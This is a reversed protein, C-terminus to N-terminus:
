GIQDDPQGVHARFYAIFVFFENKLVFCFDAEDGHFDTWFYFSHFAITIIIRTELGFCCRRLSICFSLIINKTIKHISYMYPNVPHKENDALILDCLVCLLKCFVCYHLRSSYLMAKM